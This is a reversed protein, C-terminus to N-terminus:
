KNKRKKSSASKADQVFKKAAKVRVMMEQSDKFPLAELKAESNKAHKQLAAAAAKKWDLLVDREQVLNEKLLDPWNDDGSACTQQLEVCLPQLEVVAKGALNVITKNMKLTERREKQSEKKREEAKRAAAKEEKKRQAELQKATLEQEPEPIPQETDPADENDSLLDVIMAGTVNAAEPQHDVKRKRVSREAAAVSSEIRQKVEKEQLSTVPLMYTKEQLIPDWMQPANEQIQNTNYGKSHWLCGLQQAYVSLPLYTGKSSKALESTKVMTLSNVLVDRLRDYRLRGDTSEERMARCQQWFQVQEETTLAAFEPPPWTLNRRLTSNIANCAKCWWTKGKAQADFVFVEMQCKQCVVKSLEEDKPPSDMLVLSDVKATQSVEAEEVQEEGVKEPTDMGLQNEPCERMLRQSEDSLIPQVSPNVQSEGPQQLTPAPEADMILALSFPVIRKRKPGSFSLVFFAYVALATVITKVTDIIISILSMNMIRMITVIVITITERWQPCSASDVEDRWEGNSIFHTGNVVFRMQNRRDIPPVTDDVADMCFMLFDQVQASGHYKVRTVFEGQFSKIDVYNGDRVLHYIKQAVGSPPRAVAISLPTTKREFIDYHEYVQEEIAQFPVFSGRIGLELFIEIRAALQDERFNEWTMTTVYGYNLM